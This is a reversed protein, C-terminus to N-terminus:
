ILGFVKAGVGVAGVAVAAGAGIVYKRFTSPPTKSVFAEGRMATDIVSALAVMAAHQSQEGTASDLVAKADRVKAAVALADAEVTKQFVGFADQFQKVADSM